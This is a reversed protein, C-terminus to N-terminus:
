ILECSCKGTREIPKCCDPCVVVREEEELEAALGKLIRYDEETLM